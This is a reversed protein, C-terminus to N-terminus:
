SPNSDPHVRLHEIIRQVNAAERSPPCVQGPGGHIAMHHNDVAAVIGRFESEQLGSLGFLRSLEGFANM